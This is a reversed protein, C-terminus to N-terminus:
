MRLLTFAVDARRQLWRCGIRDRDQILCDIGQVAIRLDLDFDITIGIRDAGILVVLTQGLTTGVDDILVQSRVADVRAADGRHLAEALGVRDVGVLGRSATLAVTADLELDLLGLVATHLGSASSRCDTTSRRTIHFARGQAPSKKELLGSAPATLIRVRLTSGDMTCRPSATCEGRCPRARTSDRM